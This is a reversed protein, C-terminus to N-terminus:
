TRLDWINYYINYLEKAHIIMSYVPKKSHFLHIKRVRNTHFMYELAAQLIKSWTLPETGHDKWDQFPIYDCREVDKSSSM